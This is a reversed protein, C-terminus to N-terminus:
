ASGASSRCKEGIAFKDDNRKIDRSQCGNIAAEFFSVGLYCWTGNRRYQALGRQARRDLYSFLGPAYADYEAPQFAREARAVRQFTFSRKKVRIALNVPLFQHFNTDMNM